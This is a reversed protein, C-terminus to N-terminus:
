LPAPGAGHISRWRGHFRRRRHKESRSTYLRPALCPPHGNASPYVSLIAM